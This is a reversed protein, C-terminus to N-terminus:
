GVLDAVKCGLAEAIKALTAMTPNDSGDEISLVTVDALDSKRALQRATWGKEERLAQIRKGTEFTEAM